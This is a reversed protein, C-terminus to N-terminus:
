EDDEAVDPRIAVRDSGLECEAERQHGEALGHSEDIFVSQRFVEGEHFAAIADFSWGGLWEIDFDGDSEVGGGFGAEAVIGQM